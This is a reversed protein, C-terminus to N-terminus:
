EWASTPFEPAEAALPVCPEAPVPVAAAMLSLLEGPFSLGGGPVGETPLMLPLLPPSPPTTRPLKLDEPDAQCLRSPVPFEESDEEAWPVPSPINEWHLVLSAPSPPPPLPTSDPLDPRQPLM